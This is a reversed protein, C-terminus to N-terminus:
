LICNRYSSLWTIALLLCELTIAFAITCGVSCIDAMGGSFLDAKIEVNGAQVRRIKVSLWSENVAQCM